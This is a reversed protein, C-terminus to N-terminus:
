LSLAARARANVELMRDFGPQGALRTALSELAPFAATDFGARQAVGFAWNLYVDIISWSGLWWGGQALRREAQGFAKTALEISKEKVPATEGTTMRQPNAIGRVIPHLTGGVFAMGGIAEAQQRPDGSTSLLGAAPRILSIVTLIAATEALAIGDVLLLPVKGLPNVALYASSTQEGSALDVLELTYALDAAELACVAVQSCANPFHYLTLEPQNTDM